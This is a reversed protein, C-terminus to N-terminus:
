ESVLGWYHSDWILEQSTGKTPRDNSWVRKLRKWDFGNKMESWSTGMSFAHGAIICHQTICIDNYFTNSM